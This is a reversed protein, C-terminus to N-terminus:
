LFRLTLEILEEKTINACLLSAIQPTTYQSLLRIKEKLREEKKEKRRRRREECEKCWVPDNGHICDERDAGSGM